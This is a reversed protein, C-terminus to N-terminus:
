ESVQKKFFLLLYKSSGYSQTTDATSVLEYGEAGMRDLLTSIREEDVKGGFLGKTPVKIMKHKWKQMAMDIQQKVCEIYHNETFYFLEEAQYFINGFAPRFYCSYLSM